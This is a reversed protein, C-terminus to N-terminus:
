GFNPRPPARGKISNRLTYLTISSIPFNSVILSPTWLFQANIQSPDAAAAMVDFQKKDAKARIKPAAAACYCDEDTVSSLIKEAARSPGRHETHESAHTHCSAKTETKGSSHHSCACASVASSLLSLIFIIGVAIKSKRFRQRM